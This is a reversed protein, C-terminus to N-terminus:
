KSFKIQPAGEDSAQASDRPISLRMGVKIGEPSGLLTKNAEFLKNWNAAKGYVQPKAAISWLSDGEQVIYEQVQAAEEWNSPHQGQITPIKKVAVQDNTGDHDSVGPLEITAELLQRTARITTPPAQGILYGRNGGDEINIDVRPVEVIQTTIRKPAAGCGAIFFALGLGFLKIFPEKFM